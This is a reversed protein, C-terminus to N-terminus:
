YLGKQQLQGIITRMAKDVAATYAKVRATAEDTAQGYVPTPSVSAVERADDQTNWVEFSVTAGVKKIGRASDSQVTGIDITGMGLFAWGADIASDQYAVLIDDTLRGDDRMLGDKIITDLKPVNRLRRVNRTEFNNDSLAQTFAKGVDDSLARNPVFIVKANQQESSGGSRRVDISKSTASDISSIGDSASEEKLNASSETENVSAQKQDFNKTGKAVRAIFMAGFDSGQGSQENGAASRDTLFNQIEDPDIEAVIVVSYRKKKKDNKFDQVEPDHDMFCANDEDMCFEFFEKKFQTLLRKQIKPLKARYKKLASLKAKRVAEDETDGSFKSYKVKGKATILVTEATSNGVVFFIPSFYFILCFVVLFIRM